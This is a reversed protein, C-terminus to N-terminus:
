GENNSNAIHYENVISGLVGNVLRPSSDGGFIKALEVAEDIAVKFPTDNNYLIEWIAIRLVSRDIVAMQVVPFVPALREIIDDIEHSNNLVGQVLNVVFKRNAKALLGEAVLHAMGDDFSHNTCDLEYLLQLANIRAKRRSSM